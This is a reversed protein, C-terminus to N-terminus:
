KSSKARQYKEPPAGQVLEAVAAIDRKLWEPSRQVDRTMQNKLHRIQM